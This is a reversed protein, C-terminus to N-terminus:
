PNMHHYSGGGFGDVGGGVVVVGGSGGGNGVGGGIVDVGGVDVGVVDVDVVPASERILTWFLQILEFGLQIHDHPMGCLM